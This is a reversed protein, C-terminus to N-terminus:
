FNYPRCDEKGEYFGTIEDGSASLFERLEEETGFVLIGVHGTLHEPSADKDGQCMARHFATPDGAYQETLETEKIAKQPRRYRDFYVYFKM